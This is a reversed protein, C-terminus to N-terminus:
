KSEKNQSEKLVFQLGALVGNIFRIRNITESSVDNDTIQEIEKLLEKRDEEAEKITEVILYKLDNKNTRTAM